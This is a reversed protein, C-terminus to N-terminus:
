ESGADVQGASWADEVVSCDAPIGNAGHLLGAAISRDGDTIVGDAIGTTDIEAYKDYDTASSRGPGDAIVGMEIIEIYGETLDDDSTATYINLPDIGAHLNAKTPYTCSEDESILNPLGTTTNKRLTGNWVDYPSLYVNFNLLDGSNKSELIRVRVAKFLNTTNTITFNSIFNNNVTYYPLLAVQDTRDHNVHVAMVLSNTSIMLLAMILQFVRVM